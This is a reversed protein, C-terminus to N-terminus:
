LGCCSLVFQKTPYTMYFVYQTEAVPKPEIPHNLTLLVFLEIADQYSVYFRGAPM